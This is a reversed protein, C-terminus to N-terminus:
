MLSKMHFPKYIGENTKYQVLYYFNFYSLMLLLYYSAEAASRSAGEPGWSLESKTLHPASRGGVGGLGYV